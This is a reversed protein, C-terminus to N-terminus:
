DQTEDAQEKYKNRMSVIKNVLWLPITVTQHTHCDEFLFDPDFGICHLDLEEELISYIDYNNNCCFKRWRRYDVSKYDRTTLPFTSCRCWKRNKRFPDPTLFQCNTCSERKM